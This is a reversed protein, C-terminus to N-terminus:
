RTLKDFDRSNAPHKGELFYPLEGGHTFFDQNNELNSGVLIRSKKLLVVLRRSLILGM